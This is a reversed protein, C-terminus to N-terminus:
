ISLTKLYRLRFHLILGGCVKIYLTSNNKVYKLIWRFIFKNFDLLATKVSNGRMLLLMLFTCLYRCYLRNQFVYYWICLILLTLGSQKHLPRLFLCLGIAMTNKWEPLLVSVLYLSNNNEKQFIACHADINWGTSYIEAVNPHLEQKM